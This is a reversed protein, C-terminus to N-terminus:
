RCLSEADRVFWRSGTADIVLTDIPGGVLQPAHLSQEAVLYRAATPTGAEVWAVRPARVRGVIPGEAVSSANFMKGGECDGPCEYWGASLTVPDTAVIRIQFLAARLVPDHSNTGAVTISTFSDGPQYLRRVSAAANAHEIIKRLPSYVEAVLQDKVDGLTKASTLARGVEAQVDFSPREAFMFGATLTWWRGASAIKCALTGDSLRSDAALVIREPVRIAVTATAALRAALTALIVVLALVLVLARVVKESM